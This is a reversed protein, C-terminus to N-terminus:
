PAAEKEIAATLDSFTWAHYVITVGEMYVRQEPMARLFALIANRLFYRDNDDDAGVEDAAAELAKRVDSM